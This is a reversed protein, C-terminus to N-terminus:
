DTCDDASCQHKVRPTQDSTAVATGATNTADVTVRITSQFDAPSLMYTAETARAGLIAVCQNGRADCRLWQHSFVISESGSWTGTSATLTNGVRPVGTIQPAIKNEPVTLPADVRVQVTAPASM